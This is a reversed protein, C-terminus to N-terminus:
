SFTMVRASFPGDAALELRCLQTGTPKPVLAPVSIKTGVSPGVHVAGFPVGNRLIRVTRPEPALLTTNMTGGVCAYVDLEVRGQPSDSSSELGRVWRRIRLPQEVRWLSYYPTGALRLGFLEMTNSALVYEGPAQTGDAFVLRGDGFPGVSRQPVGGPVIADLLDYVTRVGPNWFGSEWVTEWNLDASYLFAVPANATSRIWQKDPGLTLQQV